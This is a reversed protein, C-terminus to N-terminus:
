MFAGFGTGYTAVAVGGRPVNMEAVHTWQNLEIDYREVTKYCNQDDLGGIAYIARGLAGVAMGRRRVNLPAVERWSEDRVDLCEVSSLHETGDHGGIAYIQPGACIVGVHRRGIRLEGVQRWQDRLWDYVEVSRFPDLKPGRGGVCFIVGAYTKRPRTQLELEENQQLLAMLQRPRLSEAITVSTPISALQERPALPLTSNQQPSSVDGISRRQGRHQQQQMASSAVVSASVVALFAETQGRVLALAEPLQAVLPHQRVVGLFYALPLQFFRLHRLLTPLEKSRNTQDVQVWRVIFEFLEKEDVISLDDSQALRVLTSISNLQLFDPSNCFDAFHELLFLDIAALLQQCSHQDALDRLELCNDSTLFQVLFKECGDKVYKVGLYNSAHLLERVNAENIACEYTYAFDVIQRLGNLSVEGIKQRQQEADDMGSNFLGRFYDISAALVVKHAHLIEDQCEIEVDCLQKNQRLTNLNALLAKFYNHDHFASM